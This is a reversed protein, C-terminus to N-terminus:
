PCTCFHVIRILEKIYEFSGPALHAPKDIANLVAVSELFMIFSHACPHIVTVSGISKTLDLVNDPKKVASVVEITSFHFMAM